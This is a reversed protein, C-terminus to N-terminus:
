HSNNCLITNMYDATQKLFHFSSFFCFCSSSCGTGIHVDTNNCKRYQHQWVQRCFGNHRLWASLGDDGLPPVYRRRLHNTPERKAPLPGLVPEGSRRVRHRAPWHHLHGDGPQSRAAPCLLLLSIETAVAEFIYIDHLHHSKWCEHPSLTFLICRSQIFIATQTCGSLNAFMSFSIQM